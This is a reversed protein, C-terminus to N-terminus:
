ELTRLKVQVLRLDDLSVQSFRRLRVYGFLNIKRNKLFENGSTQGLRVILTVKEAERDEQREREHRDIKRDTERDRQEQIGIDRKREMQRGEQIETKRDRQRETKRNKINM